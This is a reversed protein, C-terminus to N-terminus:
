ISKHYNEKKPKQKLGLRDCAKKGAAVHVNVWVVVTFICTDDSHACLWTMSEYLWQLYVPTMVTLGCDAESMWQLYVPTMVTLGCDTTAVYMWQLYVPAIVTFVTLCQGMCGSYIYLHWWQSCLWINVWLMWQLYVTIMVTFTCDTMSEYLWQLYVPTMLTLVCDPWQSMCGSYIYLHWWQSYVILDNVRVVVTFICTGDSRTRLWTMSEYLWQLYVPTMVTLVCDPWQSMCDSYIYLHWWQSYVILDNVWVIVTFICTDDSHAWLWDNVWVDETFITIMVTLVCDNMSEYLWQLYVPTMVTFVNLRQSM